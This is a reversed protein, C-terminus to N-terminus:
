EFNIIRLNHGIVIICMWRPINCHVYMYHVGIWGVVVPVAHFRYIYMHVLSTHSILDVNNIYTGALIKLLTCNFWEVLSNSCINTQYLFVECGTHDYWGPQIKFQNSFWVYLSLWKDMLTDVVSRGSKTYKTESVMASCVRGGVRTVHM